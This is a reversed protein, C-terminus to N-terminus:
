TLEGAFAKQLLSQRLDDLYKLKMQYNHEARECELELDALYSVYRKQVSIDPIPIKLKLVDVRSIGPIAAGNALSQFHGQQMRVFGFLYGMPIGKSRIAMLQRSIALESEHMINVSGVGSGKVTILIDGAVATRKPKLTWKTVVPYRDGFDSPGTLYGIGAGASNYDKAEIHQGSILDCVDSLAIRNNDALKTEYLDFLLSEFLDRANQLNAEANARARALGEFAEDLVAVIRKQEELAEPINVLEGHVDNRNLTPVGAGSAFRGLGLHQLLYFIFRPHNGHFNKVYLATNLPWFDDEVYFVNGISGSRGTAVGPGKVKAECHTDTPGSSTVLPFRGPTRQPAPLDFGRQLTGVEDLRKTVWGAKM